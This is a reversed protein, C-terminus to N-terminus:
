PLSGLHVDGGETVRLQQFPEVLQRDIVTRVHKGGYAGVDVFERM